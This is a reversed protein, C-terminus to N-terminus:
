GLIKFAHSSFARQRINLMIIGQVSISFQSQNLEVEHIRYKESKNNFVGDLFYIRSEYSTLDAHSRMLDIVVAFVSSFKM